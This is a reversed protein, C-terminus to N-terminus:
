FDLWMMFYGICNECCLDDIAATPVESDLQEDALAINALRSLLSRSSFTPEYLTPRVRPRPFKAWTRM